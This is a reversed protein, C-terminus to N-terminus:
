GLSCINRGNCEFDVLNFCANIEWVFKLFSVLFCHCYILIWLKGCSLYCFHSRINKNLGCHYFLFHCEWLNKKRLARLIQKVLNRFLSNSCMLFEKELSCYGSDKMWWYRILLWLYGCVYMRCYSYFIGLEFVLGIFLCMINGCFRVVVRM